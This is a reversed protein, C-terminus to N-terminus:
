KNVNEACERLVEGFDSLVISKVGVSLSHADLEVVVKEYGMRRLPEVERPGNTIAVSKKEVPVANPTGIIITNGHGYEDAIEAAVEGAVPYEDLGGTIHHICIDREMLDRRIDKAYNKIRPLGAIELNAINVINAGYNKGIENIALLIDSLIYVLEKKANLVITFDEGGRMRDIIWGAVLRKDDGRSPIIYEMSAMGNKKEVETARKLMMVQREFEDSDILGIRTAEELTKIAGVTNDSFGGHTEVFIIDMDPDSIERLDEGIIMSACTGVVGILGFDFKEKIKHMLSSLKRKGGFIFDPELMSTTFVRIGDEELIRSTRFNCGPPGHLIIADVGLDRLTYMAAAIASPRPHMVEM